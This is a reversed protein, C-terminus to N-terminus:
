QAPREWLFKRDTEAIPMENISAERVQMLGDAAFEWQENGYARFWQGDAHHYEYEFKVSIRNKTFSWLTKKLRYDLERQWKGQLFQSVADRGDLFTSRNRWRTNETYALVVKEPNRTNWGDEAAQVKALATENTFPPLPPRM